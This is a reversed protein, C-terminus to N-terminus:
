RPVSRERLAHERLRALELASSRQNKVFRAREEVTADHAILDEQDDIVLAFARKRRLLNTVSQLGAGYGGLRKRCNM